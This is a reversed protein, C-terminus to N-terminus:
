ALPLIMWSSTMEFGKRIGSSIGLISSTTVLNPVCATGEDVATYLLYRHGKMNPGHRLAVTGAM